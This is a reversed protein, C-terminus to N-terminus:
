TVHRAPDFAKLNPITFKGTRAAVFFTTTLCAFVVAHLLLALDLHEQIASITALTYPEWMPRKSTPPALNQAAKYLLETERENISWNLGHIAHWAQIASMYNVVTSPANAGALHTIFASMIDAAVPVREMKPMSKFDCFM